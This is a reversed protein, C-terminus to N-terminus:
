LSCPLRNTLSASGMTSALSSSPELTFTTNGGTASLPGMTVIRLNGSLGMVMLIQYPKSGDGFLRGFEQVLQHFGLVVDEYATSRAGSLSGKLVRQGPQYRGALAYVMLVRRLELKGGDFVQHPQFRPVSYRPSPLDFHFGKDFVENRM